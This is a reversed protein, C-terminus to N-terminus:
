GENLVENYVKRRVENERENIDLSIRRGTILENERRSDHLDNFMKRDRDKIRM